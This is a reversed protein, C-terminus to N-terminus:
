PQPRDSFPLSTTGNDNSCREQVYSLSIGTKPRKGARRKWTESSLLRDKGRMRPDFCPLVKKDVWKWKSSLSYSPNSVTAATAAHLLPLNKYM